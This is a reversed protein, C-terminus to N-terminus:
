VLFKPAMRSLFYGTTKWLKLFCILFCLRKLCYTSPHRQSAAQHCGWLLRKMTLATHRQTFIGFLVEPLQLCTDNRTLFCGWFVHRECISVTNSVQNINQHLMMPRGLRLWPNKHRQTPRMQFITANDACIESHGQNRRIEVSAM